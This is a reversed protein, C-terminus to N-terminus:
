GEAENQLPAKSCIKTERSEWGERPDLVSSHCQETPFLRDEGSQHLPSVDCRSSRGRESKVM